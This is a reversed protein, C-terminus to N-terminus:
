LPSGRESYSRRYVHGWNGCRQTELNYDPTLETCFGPRGWNIRLLEEQKKLLWSISEPSSESSDDRSASESAFNWIARAGAVLVSGALLKAKFNSIGLIM